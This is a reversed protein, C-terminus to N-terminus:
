PSPEQPPQLVTLRPGLRQGVAQDWTILPINLHVALAAYVADAGRLGASGALQAAAKGLRRDLSVLRLRPLHLLYHLAREALDSRGTRRSIAGVVEALMLSPAAYQGGDLAHQELWRRSAVHFVDEAILRSVWVNADVVVVGAV